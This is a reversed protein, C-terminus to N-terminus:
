ARFTGSLFSLMERVCTGPWSAARGRNGSQLATLLPIDYLIGESKFSGALPMCCEIGSV